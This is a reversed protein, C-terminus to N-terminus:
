SVPVVVFCSFYISYLLMGVFNDNVQRRINLAVNHGDLFHWAQLLVHNTPSPSRLFSAIISAGHLM